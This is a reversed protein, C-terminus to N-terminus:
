APFAERIFSAVADVGREVILAGKEASADSTDGWAGGQCYQSFDGFTRFPTGNWRNVKALAPKPTECAALDMRMDEDCLSLAVSTILEAGHGRGNERDRLLTGACGGCTAWWDATAVQFGERTLRRCVAAAAVGNLSHVCLLVLAKAGCTTLISRAVAYVYAELADCPVHVTGDMGCFEQTDGYPIVPAVLCGTRAAIRPAIEQAVMADLGVPGHLGLIEVSALPLLVAPAQQARERLTAATM